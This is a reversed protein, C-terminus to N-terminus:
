IMTSVTMDLIWKTRVKTIKQANWLINYMVNQVSGYSCITLSISRITMLPSMTSGLSLVLGHAKHLILYHPHSVVKHSMLYCHHVVAKYFILYHWITENVFTTTTVIIKILLIIIQQTWIQVSGAWLQSLLIKHKALLDSNIISFYCCQYLNFLLLM